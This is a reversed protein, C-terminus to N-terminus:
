QYAYIRSCGQANSNVTITKTCLHPQATVSVDVSAATGYFCEVTYMGVTLSPHLVQTGLTHADSIFPPMIGGKQTLRYKFHTKTADGNGTCTIYPQDVGAKLESPAQTSTCQVCSKSASNWQNSAHCCAGPTNDTFDDDSCFTQKGDIVGCM